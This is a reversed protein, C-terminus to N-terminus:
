TCFLKIFDNKIDISNNIIVNVPLSNKINDPLINYFKYLMIPIYILITIIIKTVRYIIFDYIKWDSLKYILNSYTNDNFYGHADIIGKFVRTACTTEDKISFMNPIISIDSSLSIHYANCYDKFIFPFIGDIYRDKYLVNGDIMIPIYSSRYISEKVDDLNNYQHKVIEKGELLDTYNIYLKNSLDIYHKKKLLDFLNDCLKNWCRLDHDLKYFKYVEDGMVTGYDLMDYFYLLGCLSGISSGSIKNVKLIDKRELEKIYTLIGIMYLGNLAGGGLVLDIEKIKEGPKIDKILNEVFKEFM